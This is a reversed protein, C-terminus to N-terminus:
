SAAGITDDTDSSATTTYTQTTIVTTGDDAYTKITLGSASKVTKKFFRRWLQVMMERYNSAVGSPATTSISDLGASHLKVGVINNSANSATVAGSLITAGTVSLSGGVTVAGTTFAATVDLTAFTTAANSGAILLGNGAGPVANPLSNVTGTPTAVNFFTQFAYAIQGATEVLAYTKIKTLDAKAVGGSVDLQATGTGQTIVGGSAGALATPLTGAIVPVIIDAADHCRHITTDDVLYVSYNAIVTTGQKVVANHWGSLAETVDASYLGKCNTKETATDGGTNGITDSGYPYVELTLTLGSPAYFQVPTTAM